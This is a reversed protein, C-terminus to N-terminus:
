KSFYKALVAFLWAGVAAIVVWIILGWIFTSLSLISEGVDVQFHFSYELLLERTGPFIMVVVYCIVYVIAMWATAIKVARTTSIM